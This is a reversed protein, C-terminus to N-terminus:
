HGIGAWERARSAPIIGAPLAALAFTDDNIRM